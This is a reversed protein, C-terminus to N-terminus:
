LRYFGDGPRRSGSWPSGVSRRTSRALMAVAQPASIASYLLLPTERLRGTRPDVELGLMELTTAGILPKDIINSIWVETVVERGEVAVIAAARLVEVIGAATQARDVRAHELGLEEALARPLVSLTAGTDVLAKVEICRSRDLRCFRADVWVRELVSVSAVTAVLRFRQVTRSNL